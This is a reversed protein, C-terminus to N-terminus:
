TRFFVEGDLDNGPDDVEARRLERLINDIHRRRSKENHGGVRCCVRILTEAEEQTLTLHLEYEQVTKKEAKAM